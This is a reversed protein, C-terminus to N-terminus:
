FTLPPLPAFGGTGASGLGNASAPASKAIASTSSSHAESLVEAAAGGITTSAAFGDVVSQLDAEGCTAASAAATAAAGARGDGDESAARQDPEMAGTPPSAHVALSGTAASGDAAAAEAASAPAPVAPAADPQAEGPGATAITAAAAPILLAGQVGRVGGGVSASVGALEEKMASAVDATVQGGRVHARLRM